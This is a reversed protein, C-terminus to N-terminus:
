ATHVSLLPLIHWCTDTMCPVTYLCQLPHPDNEQDDTQKLVQQQPPTPPQLIATDLSNTCHLMLCHICHLSHM